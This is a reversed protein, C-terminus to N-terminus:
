IAQPRRVARRYALLALAGCAVLAILTVTRQADIVLLGALAAPALARAIVQPMALRGLLAGYGQRGFLEAPVTGRVITLVGNSWGYLVAFVVALVFNGSQVAFIVLALALATFSLTGAAIPGVHRGLVFEMVRGAVQMPGILAGILVAERATFGSATLLGILHAAIGAAIVSVLTLATALWFFARDARPTMPPGDLAPEARVLTPSRDRPVFRWHLPVCVAFHMAAYIGFTARMGVADLLLQSLPWFVTSAFGGFLTLATVSRRYATGAVDHLTAFAPDYLTAAMAVGALLWAVLLSFPGQVLALATCAIAGLMSGASLVLRGGRADIRRGIAPAVLGSIILGASYCAYLMVEGVGAAERLSPGLVAITYYLTGWSIIQAFGLAIVTSSLSPSRAPEAVGDPM